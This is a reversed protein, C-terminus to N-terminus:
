TFEGIFRRQADEVNTGVKRNALFPLLSDDHGHHDQQHVSVFSCDGDTGVHCIMQRTQTDGIHRDDAIALHGPEDQFPPEEIDRGRRLRRSPDDTRVSRETHELRTDM